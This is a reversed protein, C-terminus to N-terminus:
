LLYLVNENIEQKLEVLDFDGEPKFTKISPSPNYKFVDHIKCFLKVGSTNTVWMLTSQETEVM